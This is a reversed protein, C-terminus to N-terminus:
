IGVSKILLILCGASFACAGVQLYFVMKDQNGKLADAGAKANAIQITVMTPSIPKVVNRKLMDIPETDDEYFFITPVGYQKIVYKPHIHYTGGNIEIKKESFSKLYSKINYDKGIINVFGLGKKKAKRIQLARKIDKYFLAVVVIALAGVVDLLIMYDM